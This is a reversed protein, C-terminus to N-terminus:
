TYNLPTGSKLLFISSISFSFYYRFYGGTPQMWFVFSVMTDLMEFSRNSWRLLASNKFNFRIKWSWKAWIIPIQKGRGKQENGATFSLSILRELLPFECLLYGWKGTVCYCTHVEKFPLSNKPHPPCLFDALLFM